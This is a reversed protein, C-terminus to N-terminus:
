KRPQSRRQNGRMISKISKSPKQRPTSKEAANKFVLDKQIKNLIIYQAPQLRINELSFGGIGVRILKIVSHHIFDCLKRVIRNQGSVIRIEIWSNSKLTKLIRASQCRVSKGDIKFNRTLKELEAATPAGEVKAVAGSFIWPHRRLVSFDRNPSLFIDTM